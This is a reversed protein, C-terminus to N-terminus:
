VIGIRCGVRAWETYLLIHLLYNHGTKCNVFQAQDPKMASKHKDDSWHYFLEPPLDIIDEM